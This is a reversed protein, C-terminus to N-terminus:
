GELTTCDQRALVPHPRITFPGQKPNGVQAWQAKLRSTRSITLSVTKCPAQARFSEPPHSLAWRGLSTEALRTLITLKTSSRGSTPLRLVGIMPSRPQLEYPPTSRVLAGDHLFGLSTLTCHCPSGFQWIPSHSNTHRSLSPELVGGEISRGGDRCIEAGAMTFFSFTQRVAQSRVLCLMVLVVQPWILLAAGLSWVQPLKPGNHELDGAAERQALHAVQSVKPCDRQCRDRFVGRM